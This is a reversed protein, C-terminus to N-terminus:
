EDPPCMQFSYCRSWIPILLQGRIPDFSIFGGLTIDSPQTNPCGLDPRGSKTRAEDYRDGSIHRAMLYGLEEEVGNRLAVLHIEGLSYCTSGSVSLLRGDNDVASGNGKTLFT